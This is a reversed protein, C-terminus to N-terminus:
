IIRLKLLVLCHTTLKTSQSNQGWPYLVWLEQSQLIPPGWVWFLPKKIYVRMGLQWNSFIREGWKQM